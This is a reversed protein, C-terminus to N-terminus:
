TKVKSLLYIGLMTFVALPSWIAFSPTLSGNLGFEQFVSTFGIFLLWLGIAIGITVVKGRRSLSLAFPATFLAITFPLFPTAYRKQLAISFMRRETDSDSSRIRERLETRDLYSPKESINVFPNSEEPLEIQPEKTVRIRGDKLDSKDVPENLIFRNGKWIASTSHYVAQLNAGETTFRYIHVNSLRQENDSAFNQKNGSEPLDRKENDSASPVEFSIIQDNSYM